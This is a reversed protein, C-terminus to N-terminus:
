NVTPAGLIIPCGSNERRRWKWGKSPSWGVKLGTWDTVNDEWRKKKRGKRRGGQVTGQLTMKALGTSRTIHGYWRLKHKKVTTLDEFPGIAQRIRNRVEENTVRDRYSIGLLRRFCRMLYFYAIHCILITHTNARGTLHITYSHYAKNIFLYYYYDCKFACNSIKSLRRVTSCVTELMYAWTARACDHAFWTCCMSCKDHAVHRTVHWTTCFSLEAILNPLTSIANIQALVPPFWLVRVFGRAVLKLFHWMSFGSPEHGLRSEFGCLLM